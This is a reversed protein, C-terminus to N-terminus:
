WDVRPYFQSRNNLREGREEVVVTSWVGVVCDVSGFHSKTCCFIDGFAFLQCYVIPELLVEVPPLFSQGTFPANMARTRDASFTVVSWLSLKPVRKLPDVEIPKIEFIRNRLKLHRTFGDLDHLVLTPTKFLRLHGIEVELSIFKM